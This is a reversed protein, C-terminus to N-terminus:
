GANRAEENNTEGGTLVIVCPSGFIKNQKLERCLTLGSTGQLNVDLVVLSPRWFRAIPTAEEVSAAEEIAYEDAALTTRLLLRLGPDDDVLLIRRRTLLGSGIAGIGTWARAARAREEPTAEERPGGLTRSLGAFLLGVVLAAVVWIGLAFFFWIAWGPMHEEGAKG